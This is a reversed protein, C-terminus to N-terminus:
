EAMAALLKHVKRKYRSVRNLTFEARRKKRAKDIKSFLVPMEQLIEQKTSANLIKKFSTRIASRVAKNRTNAKEATKIRKKASKHHPM